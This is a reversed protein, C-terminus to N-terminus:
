PIISNRFRNWENPADIHADQYGKEVQKIYDKISISTFGLRSLSNKAYLYKEYNDVIFSSLKHGIIELYDHGWQQRTAITLIYGLHSNPLEELIRNACMLTFYDYDGFKRQYVVGLMYLLFAINEKDNMASLFIGNKIAETTVGMSQIYWEDRAFSGTTLEVNVWNGDEAIHKIYMHNPAVALFSDGGLEDCLVKYYLPLSVCLGFHSSIVKSVFLKSVDKEGGSDDVDYGFATFGNM